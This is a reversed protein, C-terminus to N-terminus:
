LTPRVMIKVIEQEGIRGFSIELFENRRFFVGQTTKSWGFQPLAADYFQVLADRSVGGVYAVVEVIQGEPKDFVVAREPLESLGEMLPVDKLASFFQPLPMEGQGAYVPSPEGTYPFLLMACACMKIIAKGSMFKGEVEFAVRNKVRVM